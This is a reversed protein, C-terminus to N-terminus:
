LSPSQGHAHTGQACGAHYEVFNAGEPWEKSEDQTANEAVQGVGLAWSSYIKFLLHICFFCM